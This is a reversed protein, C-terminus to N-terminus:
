TPVSEQKEQAERASIASELEQVATAFARDRQLRDLSSQILNAVQRPGVKVEDAIAAVRFGKRWAVLALQRRSDVQVRFRSRAGIGAFPLGNKCEILNAIQSLNM